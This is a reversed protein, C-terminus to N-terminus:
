WVLWPNKPKKNTKKQRKKTTNVPKTMIRNTVPKGLFIDALTEKRKPKQAAKPSTKKTQNYRQKRLKGGNATINKNASEGMKYWPNEGFISTINNKLNTGPSTTQEKSSSYGGLLYDALSTNTSTKKVPAQKEEKRTLIPLDAYQSGSMPSQGIDDIIMWPKGEVDGQYLTGTKTDKGLIADFNGLATWNGEKNRPTAGFLFNSTGKAPQNATFISGPRPQDPKWVDFNQITNNWVVNYGENRLKTVETDIAQYAQVKQDQIGFMLYDRRAKEQENFKLLEKERLADQVDYAAWDVDAFISRALGRTKYDKNMKDINYPDASDIVLILGKSASNFTVDGADSIDITTNKWDLIPSLKYNQDGEKKDSINPQGNKVIFYKEVGGQIDRVDKESLGVRTMGGFQSVKRAESPASVVSRPRLSIPTVVSNLNPAAQKLETGNMYTKSSWGTLDVGPLTAGKLNTPKLSEPALNSPPTWVTEFTPEEIQIKVAEVPAVRQISFTTQKPAEYSGYSSISPAQVAPATYSPTQVAPKSVTTYGGSVGVKNVADFYDPQVLPAVNQSKDTASATAGGVYELREKSGDFKVAWRYGDEVVYDTM